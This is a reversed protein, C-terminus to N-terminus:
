GDRGSSSCSQMSHRRLSRSYPRSARTRAIGPTDGGSLSTRLFKRLFQIIRLFRREVLVGAIAVITSHRIGDLDASDTRLLKLQLRALRTEGVTAGVAAGRFSGLRCGFRLHVGAVAPRLAFGVVGPTAGHAIEEVPFVALKGVKARFHSAVSQRIGRMSTSHM